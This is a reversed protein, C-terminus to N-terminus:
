VVVGEFLELLNKVSTPYFKGGRSTKFGYKNLKDAIKRYSDGDVRLDKAFKCAKVNNDDKRALDRKKQAGKVKAAHTLNKPSGLKIGQRKKAALAAKTRESIKRAEDGTLIAYLGFMTDDMNPNDVVLVAALEEKIKLLQRPIRGLRDLKAVVLTYNNKACLEIAEDLKPRRKKRGSEVEMFSEVINEVGVYNEVQYQQSELGLGSVGQERTSVRYYAVYKAMDDRERTFGLVKAM